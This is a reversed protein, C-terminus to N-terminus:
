NRLSTNRRRDVGEVQGNAILEVLVRVVDSGDEGVHVIFAAAIWHIDAIHGPKTPLALLDHNRLHRFVVAMVKGGVPIRPPLM